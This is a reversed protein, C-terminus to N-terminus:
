MGIQYRMDLDDEDIGIKRAIKEMFDDWSLNSSFM